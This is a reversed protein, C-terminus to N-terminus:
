PTLFRYFNDFIPNIYGQASSNENGLTEKIGFISLILLFQGDPTRPTRFRGRPFGNLGDYVSPFLEVLPPPRQVVFLALDSFRM